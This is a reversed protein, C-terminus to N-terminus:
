YQMTITNYPELYSNMKDVDSLFCKQLIIAPDLHYITITNQGKPINEIKINTHIFNDAVWKKWFPHDAGNKNLSIVKPTGGNIAIAIKLGGNDYFDLTPSHLLHIFGDAFLSIQSFCKFTALFILPLVIWQFRINM